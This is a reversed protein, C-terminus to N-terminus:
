SRRRGMWVLGGLGTAVLLATSPEPIPLFTGMVQLQPLQLEVGGEALATIAEKLDYRMLFSATDGALVSGLDISPFYLDGLSGSHKIIVWGDEPRLDLGVLDAPDYDVPLTNGLVDQAMYPQHLLVALYLDGILDDASQNTVTWDSSATAPQGSILIEPSVSSQDLLSSVGLQLEEITQLPPLDGDPISLIPVGSSLAQTESIGLTLGDANVPGDFFVTTATAPGATALGFAAIALLPIWRQRFRRAFISRTM